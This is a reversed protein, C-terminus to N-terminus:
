SMTITAGPVPQGTVDTCDFQTPPLPPAPLFVGLFTCGKLAITSNPVRNGIATPDREIYFSCNTITGGAAGNDSGEFGYGIMYKSNGGSFIQCKDIAFAGGHPIDIAKGDYTYGNSVCPVGADVHYILWEWGIPLLPPPAFWAAPNLSQGPRNVSTGPAVAITGITCASVVTRKANSKILNGNATHWIRSNTISLLEPVVTGFAACYLTHCQDDGTNHDIDCGTVTLTGGTHLVNTQCLHLHCNTLVGNSGIAANNRVAAANSSNAGTAGKIDFDVLTYDGEFVFAAQDLVLPLGTVDVMVKTGPLASKVTVPRLFHVSERYVAVPYVAITAGAPAAAAAAGITTYTNGPGVFLTQGVPPTPSTTVAVSVSTAAIPKGDVTVTITM